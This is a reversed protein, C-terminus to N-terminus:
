RSVPNRATVIWAAGGLAVPGNQAFPRLAQRLASEVSAKQDPTSDALLRSVPGFAVVHAVAVELSEGMELQVDFPRTDIAAFGASALISRVREGDGFAFPGPALPDVPPVQPVRERAASMPVRVWENERAERWCAFALRGGPKLCARMHAFAALPEEFFMVGFRSFLLDYRRAGFDHTAADAERFELQPLDTGARERAFALMPRSVDVATVQGNPGVLTALRIASDGCGCGVDLVCEGARVGATRVIEAGIPALMRDLRKQHATWRQGVDGNWYAIQTENRGGPTTPEHM